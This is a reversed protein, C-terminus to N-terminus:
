KGDVQYRGKIPCIGITDAYGEVVGTTKDECSAQFYDSAMSGSMPGSIGVWTSSSADLKCKGTAIAGALILNGMSHTVIITDAIVPISRSNSNSAALVRDCVKQQLDDSTWANNETDLVAFKMTSCCPVHGSLKDGWYDEFADQNQPLEEKVGLGHIFICPRPTSKCSCSSSHAWSFDFAAKLKRTDGLDTQKGTLLSRGVSSIPNPLLVTTCAQTDVEHVFNDTHTRFYDVKIDIDSSRM